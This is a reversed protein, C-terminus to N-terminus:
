IYGYSRVTLAVTRSSEIKGKLCFLNKESLNKERFDMDASNRTRFTFLVIESYNISKNLGVNKNSRRM